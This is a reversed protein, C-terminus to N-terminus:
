KRESDWRQEDRTLERIRRQLRSVEANLRHAGDTAAAMDAAAGRMEDKARGVAVHAAARAAEIGVSGSMRAAAAAFMPAAASLLRVETEM